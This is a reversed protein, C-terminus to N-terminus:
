NANAGSDTGGTDGSSQTANAGNKSQTSSKNQGGAANNDGTLDSSETAVISGDAAVYIKLAEENQTRVVVCYTQRGDRMAHTIGAIQADKYKEKVVKAIAPVDTETILKGEEFGDIDQVVGAPDLGTNNDDKMGTNGDMNTDGNTNPAPSGPTMADPTNTGPVPTTQNTGNNATTGNNTTSGNTNPTPTPSTQDEKADCGTVLALCLVLSLAFLMAISMTRKM